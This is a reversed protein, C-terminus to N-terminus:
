PCGEWALSMAGMLGARDLFRAPRVTPPFPLHDRWLAGWWPEFHPLSRSVGGGVALVDVDLVLLAQGIWWGLETFREYLFRGVEPREERIRFADALSSVGFRLELERDLAAGGLREELPARGAWAGPEEGRWGYAIEGAAGHAGAVVRGDVAYSVAVGTGLNLYASAFATRLAGWRIEAQHAAKVDNGIRIPLGPFRDRFFRPLRLHEWGPVNPAFLVGDERTIGMTSVGIAAIRRGEALKKGRAAARDVLADARPFAATSLRDDALIRGDRTGVAIACKTGGFDFGLAVPGPDSM